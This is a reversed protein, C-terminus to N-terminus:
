HGGHRRPSSKATELVAFYQLRGGFLLNVVPPYLQMSTREERVRLGHREHWARWDALRNYAYRCPV